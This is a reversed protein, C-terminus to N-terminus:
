CCRSRLPLDWRVWREVPPLPPLEPRLLPLEPLLLPLAPRLAVQPLQLVPYPLTQFILPRPPLPGVPIAATWGSPFTKSSV